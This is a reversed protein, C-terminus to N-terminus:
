CSWDNTEANECETIFVNVSDEFKNFVEKADFKKLDQQTFYLSVAPPPRQDICVRGDNGSFYFHGNTISRNYQSNDYQKLVKIKCKKSYVASLYDLVATIRTSFPQNNQLLAIVAILGLEVHSLEITKDADRPLSQYLFQVGTEIDKATFFGYSYKALVDYLDACTLHRDLVHNLVILQAHQYSENSKGMFTCKSCTSCYTINNSTNASEIM